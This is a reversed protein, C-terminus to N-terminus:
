GTSHSQDDIRGKECVGSREDGVHAFLDDKPNGTFRSSDRSHKQIQSRTIKDLDEGGRDYGLRRVEEHAKSLHARNQLNQFAEVIWDIFPREREPFEFGELELKIAINASKGAWRRQRSLAPAPARRPGFSM